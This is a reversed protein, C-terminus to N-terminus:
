RLLSFCFDLRADIVVILMICLSVLRFYKVLTARKCEHCDELASAPTRIRQTTLKEDHPWSLGAHLNARDIAPCSRASLKARVMAVHRATAIEIECLKM